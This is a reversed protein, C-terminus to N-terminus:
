PGTPRVRGAGAWTPPLPSGAPRPGRAAPPAPRGSRAARLPGFRRPPRGPRRRPPGHPPWRPWTRPPPSAGSPWGPRTGRGPPGAGGAEGRRGVPGFAQLRLDLPEVGAHAGQRLLAVPEPVLLGFQHRPERGELGVFARQIGPLPRHLGPPRLEGLRRTRRE